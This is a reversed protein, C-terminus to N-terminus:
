SGREHTSHNLTNKKLNHKSTHKRIYFSRFKLNWSLKKTLPLKHFSLKQMQFQTLCIFVHLKLAEVAFSFSFCLVYVVLASQMCVMDAFYFRIPIDWRECGTCKKKLFKMSWKYYNKESADHFIYQQSQSVQALKLKGCFRCAFTLWNLLIPVFWFAYLRM